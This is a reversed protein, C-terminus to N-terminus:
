CHAPQKVNTFSHQLLEWLPLKQPPFLVSVYGSGGGSGCEHLVVFAVEFSTYGSGEWFQGEHTEEDYVAGHDGHLSISGEPCAGGRIGHFRSVSIAYPFLEYSDAIVQAVKQSTRWQWNLLEVNDDRLEQHRLGAYGVLGPSTVM